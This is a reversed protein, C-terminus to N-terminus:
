TVHEETDGDGRHDHGHKESHAAGQVSHWRRPAREDVGQQQRLKRKQM